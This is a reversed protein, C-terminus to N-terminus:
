REKTNQTGNAQLENQFSEVFGKLLESGKEMMRLRKAVEPLFFQRRGVKPAPDVTFSGEEILVSKLTRSYTLSAFSHAACWFRGVNEIFVANISEVSFSFINQSRLRGEAKKTSMHLPCVFLEDVVDRLEPRNAIVEDKIQPHLAKIPFLIIPIFSNTINGNASQSQHCGWVSKYKQYDPALDDEFGCVGRIARIVDLNHYSSSSRKVECPGAFCQWKQLSCGKPPMLCFQRLTDIDLVCKMLSLILIQYRFSDCLEKYDLTLNEISTFIEFLQEIHNVVQYKRKLGFTNRLTNDISDCQQVFSSLYKSM